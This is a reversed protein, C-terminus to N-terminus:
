KTSSFINQRYHSKRAYINDKKSLSIELQGAKLGSFLRLVPLDTSKQHQDVTHFKSLIKSHRELLSFSIGKQKVSICGFIALV